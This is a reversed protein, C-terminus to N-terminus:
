TQHISDNRSRQCYTCIEEIHGPEFEHRIRAIAMSVDDLSSAVMYAKARLRDSFDVDGRKEQEDACSRLHAVLKCRCVM